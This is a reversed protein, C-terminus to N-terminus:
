STKGGRREGPRFTRLPEEEMFLRIALGKGFRGALVRRFEPLIWKEASGHGVDAVPMEGAAAELAQHYKMDGTVFLDAGAERAARAFESGSGAVVAIRRVM